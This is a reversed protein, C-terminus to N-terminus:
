DLQLKLCEDIKRTDTSFGVVVVCKFIKVRFSVVFVVIGSVYATCNHNTFM